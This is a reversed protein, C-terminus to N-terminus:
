MGTQTIRPEGRHFCACDCIDGRARASQSKGNSAFLHVDSEEIKKRSRGHATYVNEGWMYEICGSTFVVLSLLLGLLGVCGCPQHLASGSM